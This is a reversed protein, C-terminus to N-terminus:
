PRGLKWALSSNQGVLKDIEEDIFGIQKLFCLNFIAEIKLCLKYLEEDSVAYQELQRDYHTLYNRTNIIKNIFEKRNKGSGFYDQFPEIIHQLRKRLNIENGHLLRGKLWFVHEEPCQELISEVLNNYVDAEMLTENCTRRHYTELGQM